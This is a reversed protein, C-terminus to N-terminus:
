RGALALACMAEVGTAIADDNFDFTPQHLKPTTAPDEGEPLLGLMYFCAEAHHGYYSFDEGGMFPAPVTRVIDDGFRGRVVDFFKATAADNNVTVPYGEHWDIKVDCGHAGATSEVIRRFASAARTRADASLTRVTGVLKVEAPIVNNAFGGHISGVTCVIPDVPDAVRSALTQLAAVIASAAVIPDRAKHPMAAHGPEGVVTLEFDDTAALVPGTKSALTGLPQDPWGHLGFIREVKPGLGGGAEGALAGDDCMVEGGGGGEEAPQFILTVPNPREDLSALVRATGVLIATHGDHGCAHMKGPTKSAWARGTQEEIPLADMDARLAIAGSADGGATAPIHAVIGHGEAFGARHEVGIAALERQVAASTNPLDFGLEPNAHLERRFATLSAAEKHARRAINDTQRVSENTTVAM